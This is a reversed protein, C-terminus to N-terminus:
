QTEAKRLRVLTQGQRQRETGGGTEKDRGGGTGRARVSAKDRVNAGERIQTQSAGPLHGTTGRGRPKAQTAPSARESGQPAKLDNSSSESSLQQFHCDCKVKRLIQLSPGKPPRPKPASVTPKGRNLLGSALLGKREPDSNGQAQVRGTQPGRWAQGCSPWPTLAPSLPGLASQVRAPQAQGHRM